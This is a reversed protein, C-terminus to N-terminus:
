SYEKKALEIVENIFGSKSETYKDRNDAYKTALKKKLNFYKKFYDPHNILYRKFYLQSYYTDSYLTTFHLYHSRAEDPGKAFFVKDAIDDRGGKHYDYKTLIEEIEPMLDLSNVVVLIDVIPKAMMGPISTSGVHHIEIIYNSLIKKLFTKEIEYEKEWNPDYEILKVIGRKLAM